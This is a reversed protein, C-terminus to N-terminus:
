APTSRHAVDNLELLCSGLHGIFWYNPAVDFRIAQRESFVPGRNAGSMSDSFSRLTMSATFIRLM